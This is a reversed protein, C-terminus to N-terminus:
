CLLSNLCIVMTIPILNKNLLMELRDRESAVGNKLVKIDLKAIDRSILTVATWIDSNM